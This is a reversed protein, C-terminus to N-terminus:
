ANIIGPDLRAALFDPTRKPCSIALQRIPLQSSQFILLTLNITRLASQRQGFQAVTIFLGHLMLSQFRYDLLRVDRVPDPVM